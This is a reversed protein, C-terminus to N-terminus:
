VQPCTCSTLQGHWIHVPFFAPPKSHFSWNFGFDHGKSMCDPLDTLALRGLLLLLINLSQCLKYLQLRRAELHLPSFVCWASSHCEKIRCSDMAEVMRLTNFTVKGNRQRTGHPLMLRSCMDKVNYSRHFWYFAAPRQTGLGVENLTGKREM